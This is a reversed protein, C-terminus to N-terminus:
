DLDLKALLGWLGDILDKRKLDVRNVVDGTRDDVSGTRIRLVIKQPSEEEFDLFRPSGASSECTIRTLQTM